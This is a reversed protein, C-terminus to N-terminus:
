RFVVEYGVNFFNLNQLYKLVGSTAPRHVPGDIPIMLSKARQPLNVKM